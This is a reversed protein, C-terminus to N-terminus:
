QCNKVCVSEFGWGAEAMCSKFVLDRTNTYANSENIAQAAGGYLGGSGGTNPACSATGNTLSECDYGTVRSQEVQKARQGELEARPECMGTAQKFGIAPDESFSYPRLTYQASNCSSLLFTAIILLATIKFKRDIFM